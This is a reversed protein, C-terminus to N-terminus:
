SQEQDHNVGEVRKKIKEIKDLVMELPKQFNTTIQVDTALRLKELKYDLIKETINYVTFCVIIVVIIINDVLTGVINSIM